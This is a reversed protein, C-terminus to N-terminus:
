NMLHTKQLKKWEDELISMEILSWYTNEDYRLVDRMLGEKVFGAKEYCRIASTNFDYVGLSIRHLKLDEFGIKLIAKIMGTCVGKGREVTNGVLVRSIRASRNKDSISGLSIHGVTKGTITSVAKYIFADSSDIKNTDEIYWDLSDETLPYKFLSGAWNTILHESNMWEILQQFDERDFYELKIM